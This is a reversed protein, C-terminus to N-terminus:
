KKTGDLKAPELTTFADLKAFHHVCRAERHNWMFESFTSGDGDDRDCCGRRRAVAVGEGWM